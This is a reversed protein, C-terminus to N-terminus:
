AGLKNTTQIVIRRYSTLSPTGNDTVELVLHLKQGQAVAARTLLDVCCKEPGPLVVDVKRNDPCRAIIELEEVELFVLWQTASPERYHWWRFSLEDGDPDYTESADLQLTTGAEASICMPGTGSVGNVTVVPHHNCSSFESKTSLTWQIRAAFDDQFTDRWRWITAQNSKYTKGDKGVVIDCVDNYHRGGLGASSGDTLGYRGGWSGYEPHEPVGLGNQVLYLFTPTDGEPIFLYDPYAAGLPGIQINAKLWEKTMKSFDPGGQDFGYYADGSIGTWAAMGYNNWGHVSVIYFLDPFTNRIWPGSDDQDSIAYVRLKQRVEAFETAPLTVSLNHLVQALVNTGGWCLIWLPADSLALIREHLLLAGESLPTGERFINM